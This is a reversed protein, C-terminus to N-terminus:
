ETWITPKGDVYRWTQGTTVPDSPCQEQYYYYYKAAKYAKLFTSSEFFAKCTTGTFANSGITTVSAPVIVEELYSCNEFMLEPITDCEGTLKVRKFSLPIRYTLSEKITTSGSIYNYHQEISGLESKGKGFLGGFSAKYQYYNTISHNYFYSLPIELYELSDMGSLAEFLERAGEHIVLEKIATNYFAEAGIVTIGSSLKATKLGTCGKFAGTYVMGLNTAPSLDVELINECGEFAYHM